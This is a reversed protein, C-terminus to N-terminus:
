SEAPLARPAAERGAPPATKWRRHLWFWMEPRERVRAELCAVHRATLARTRDRGDAAPWELPPQFEIAHRGDAQRWIFGMIIPAGTRLAIEAPGAPTSSPQGLFPVFVGDRRADQDAVMGVWRNEALAAFVRRMASGIPVLDMGAQRRWGCVMEEVAANALPKFVLEMAHLRGAWAGLLEFNGFHGTVLLAGKGGRRAAQLHELGSVAAVVQGLPARALEALRPYESAVRGLERYHELLLSRREAPSREPFARLLNQEAVRRRIGLRMAAEGLREGVRLGESWSRRGLHSVLQRVLLAELARAGRV